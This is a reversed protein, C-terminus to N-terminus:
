GLFDFDIYSHEAQILAWIAWTLHSLLAFQNVLVFLTELEKETPQAGLYEKLYIILWDLQFEKSPYRAYDTIDLGLFFLSFSFSYM